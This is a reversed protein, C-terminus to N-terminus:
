SSTHAALADRFKNRLEREFAQQGSRTVNLMIVCPDIHCGQITILLEARGSEGDTSTVGVVRLREDYDAAVARSLAAVTDLSLAEKDMRATPTLRSVKRRRREAVM